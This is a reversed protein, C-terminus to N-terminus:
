LNTIFQKLLMRVRGSFIITHKCSLTFLLFIRQTFSHKLVYGGYFIKALCLDGIEKSLLSWDRRVMDVGKREIEQM